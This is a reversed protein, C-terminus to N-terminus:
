GHVDPIPPPDLRFPGAIELSSAANLKWAQYLGFAIIALGIINSAGELFPAAMAIGFVLVLALAIGAVGTPGSVDDSVADDAAASSAPAAAGADAPQATTSAAMTVPAAPAAAASPDTGDTDGAEASAETEPSLVAQLVDPVYNATIWFYTLAVALVQYGRGGRGGSGQRVGLGVFHGIAIAILGIELSAFRRVAWWVAAGIVGAASALGIAKALGALGGSEGDAFAAANKCTPCAVQGNLTFYTKSLPQHCVTCVAAPAGEATDFQLPANTDSM